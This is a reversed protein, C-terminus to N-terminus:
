SVKELRVVMVPLRHALVQGDAAFEIRLAERIASSALLAHASLEGVQRLSCNAQKVWWDFELRYYVNETRRWVFGLEEACRQWEGPTRQDYHSPDRITEWRNIWAKSEATPSVQDAVVMRGSPRLVRYSEALFAGLDHFHHPALRSAVLTFSEDPFPLNEAAAKQFFINPVARERSLKTAEALMGDALDIGVVAAVLPALALATHGTGTAIDLVVDTSVPEALRRLAALSPGERHVPSEAYNSAIPNFQEASDKMM